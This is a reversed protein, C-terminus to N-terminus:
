RSRPPFKLSSLNIRSENLREWGSFDMTPLATGRHKPDVGRGNKSEGILSSIIAVSHPSQSFSLRYCSGAINSPSYNLSFLAISCFSSNRMRLRHQLPRHSGARNQIKESYAGASRTCYLAVLLRWISLRPICSVSACALSHLHGAPSTSISCVNPLDSSRHSSLNASHCM